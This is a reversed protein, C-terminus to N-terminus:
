KKDSRILVYVLYNISDIIEDLYKPDNRPLEKTRILKMLVLDLISSDWLIDISNGYRKNRSVALELCPKIAKLYKQKTVTYEKKDKNM